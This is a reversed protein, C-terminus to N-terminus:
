RYQKGKFRDALFNNLNKLAARYISFKPQQGKNVLFTIM